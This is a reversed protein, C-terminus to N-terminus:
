DFQSADGASELRSVRARLDDIVAQQEKVAEILLATLKEYQVTLYGDGSRSSGDENTDFPAPRVAEPLVAEVEQAIVGVDNRRAPTFGLSEVHDAWEFYVGNLRMVKGVADGINRIGRKLRRDSSYATIESSANITGTAGVAATGVALAINMTVGGTNAITMRTTFSAAGGAVLGSGTAFTFAGSNMDMTCATTNTAIWSTNFYAGYGIIPNDTTIWVGGSKSGFCAVTQYSAAPPKGFWHYNAGGTTTINGNVNLSNNLDLNYGATANAGTTSVNGSTDIRMEEVGNVQFLLANASGTRLYLPGTDASLTMDSGSHYLYGRAAGGTYFGILSQSTGNVTLSTRGGFPYGVTATGISVNGYNDMRIGSTNASWPAITLAGTTTVTGGTYLLVQDGSQVLPNFSGAGFNSGMRLWSTGANMYLEGTSSGTGGVISLKATTTATTNIAVNGDSAIRVEETSGVAFGVTNAAPLFMGNTPVSAGTPIFSTGTVSGNSVLSNVVAAGASNFSGGYLAGTFTGTTGSVAGNSALSSVSASGATSFATRASVVGNVDLASGPANTAVGVQGSSNLTIRETFTEAGVGGTYTSIQLGGGTIGRINGGGAAGGSALQIGAGTASFLTAVSSSTSPTFTGIGVTGQVSLGNTNTMAALGSYGSGIAVTGAIDMTNQPQTIANIGIRYNSSVYAWAIAPATASSDGRRLYGISQAVSPDYGLVAGYSTVNGVVIEQRAAAGPRTNFLAYDTGYVSLQNGATATGIGVYGTLTNRTGGVNINGGIGAGGAVVLAGNTTSTSANTSNITVNQGFVGYVNAILANFSLNGAISVGQRFSANGNVDLLSLANSTGIGVNGNYQALTILGSSNVAISPIGSVDNVSFITGTLSNTISFLQGASGEFSVTGNYTPYVNAYITQAGVVANASTFALVPDNTQGINPTIVINKDTNAM